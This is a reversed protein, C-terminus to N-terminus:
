NFANANVLLCFWWSCTLSFYENSFLTKSLFYQLQLWDVTLWHCNSLHCWHLCIFCCRHRHQDSIVFLFILTSVSAIMYEDQTQQLLLWTSLSSLKWLSSSFRPQLHRHYNVVRSKGQAIMYWKILTNYFSGQYQTACCPLHQPISSQHQNIITVKGAHRPKYINQQQKRVPHNGEDGDICNDLGKPVCWSAFGRLCGPCQFNHASWHVQQHQCRFHQISQSKTWSTCCGM